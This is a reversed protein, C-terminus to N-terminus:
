FKFRTHKRYYEDNGAIFLVHHNKLKDIVATIESKPLVPCGWSRGLFGYTKLYEEEAFDGGHMVIKREKANSNINDELGELVLSYGYEGKYTDKTLYFGLSSQMSNKDNSFHLAMELGSNKAHSVYTQTEIKYHKMDLLFFRKENSPKTYDVIAFYDSNKNGIMLYGLYGEEFIKYDLKGQLDLKQYIEQINLPKLPKEMEEIEEAWLIGQLLLLFILIYKKM